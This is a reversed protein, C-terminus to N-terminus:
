LTDTRVTGADVAGNKVALVVNDHKGGEVLSAFDKRPDINNDRFLRWAMQGGGFSAYKVMMFKKGRIDALTNIPSDNRVFVVGGFENLAKGRRSNIMTAVARLQYKNKMQVYLSSNALLFDFKGGKVVPEIAKFKLPIVSVKEGLNETLYAATAGWKKMAAPAGRKALVGIKVAGQASISFFLVFTLALYGAGIKKGM